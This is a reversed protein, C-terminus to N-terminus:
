VRQDPRSTKSCTIDKPYHFRCEYETNNYFFIQWKWAEVKGSHLHKILSAYFEIMWLKGEKNFEFRISTWLKM